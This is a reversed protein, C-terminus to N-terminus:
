QCYYGSTIRNNWTKSSTMRTNALNYIVYGKQLDLRYGRKSSLQYFSATCNNGNNYLSTAKNDMNFNGLYSIYSHFKAYSGSHGKYDYLCAYGSGCDSLSAASATTTGGVLVCLGAAMAVIMVRFKKM